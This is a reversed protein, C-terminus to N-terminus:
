ATPILEELIECANRVVNPCVAAITGAKRARDLGEPSSVDCGLLERCCASGCRSKFRETFKAVAVKTEARGQPTASTPGPQLLGLIMFAGTVAGCTEAMGMGGGFGSALSLAHDRSLGLQPGFTAVIAQSCSLGGRFAAVAEEARSM